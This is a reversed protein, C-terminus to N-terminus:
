NRFGDRIQGLKKMRELKERKSIRKLAEQKKKLASKKRTSSRLSKAKMIYGASKIRRSFRRLLSTNSENDSKKVEILTIM